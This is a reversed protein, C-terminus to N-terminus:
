AIFDLTPAASDVDLEAFDKGQYRYIKTPVTPLGELLAETHVRGHTEVFGVVVDAGANKLEHAKRLMAYTKGVGACM